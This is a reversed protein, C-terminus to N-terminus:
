KLDRNAPAQAGPPALIRVIAASVAPLRLHYIGPQGPPLSSWKGQWPVRANVEAGGLTVGTKAAPDGTAVSLFMVSAQRTAGPISLTLNAARSGPGYEKNIITITHGAAGRVAYATLNLAEPNSLTLSEVAGEGGLEFARMGYAKPTPALEHNSDLRIVDNAVWQTNHFEVGRAEHAAWWHLFDLAWLAGAFTDSGGPIGGSYHDNAETFRYRLGDSLVRHAMKEYLRQNATIWEPSLMSEVGQQATLGRGAGGVYFHETIVRLIGTDKEAAAFRTTWSVNGSGADPGAFTAAPVASTIAAVFARWKLLYSEFNTIMLDQAYVKRRDPENGIAFCDLYPRYHDWIYEALAADVQAYHQSRSTELLRLSYIVRHVHAARVFGFFSDIDGKDPIPVAPPSEVTTGGVRLHRVGLNQFLVLLPLNTPSFFHAGAKGPLLTKMGFSMGVYDDPILAGRSSPDVTVAVPSQALVARGLLCACVVSRALLKMNQRLPSQITIPLVLLDMLM